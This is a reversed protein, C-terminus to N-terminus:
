SFQRIESFILVKNELFKHRCCEVRDHADIETPRRTYCPDLRSFFTSMPNGIPKVTDILTLKKIIKIIKSSCWLVVIITESVKNIAIRWQTEVIVNLHLRIKRGIASKASM